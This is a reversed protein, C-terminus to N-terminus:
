YEKQPNMCHTLNLLVDDSIVNVNYTLRLLTLDSQSLGHVVRISKVVFYANPNLPYSRHELKSYGIAM